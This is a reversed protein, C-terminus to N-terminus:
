LTETVVISFNINTDKTLASIPLDVVVKKAVGNLRSKFALLDARTPAIGSLAVKMTSPATYEFSLATLTVAGRVNVIAEISQSFPSPQVYGTLSAVLTASQGLQKQTAAISTADVSKKFAAVQELHVQEALVSYIYAPFLSGVGVIIAISLFFLFVILVRLRYERKIGQQEIYPLFTYSM